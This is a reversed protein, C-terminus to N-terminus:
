VPSFVAGYFEILVPKGRFQSLKINAGTTSPLDFDPARDGVELADATRVGGDIVLAGALLVSTALIERRTPM